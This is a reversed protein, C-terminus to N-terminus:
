KIIFFIIYLIKSSRHKTSMYHLESLLTKFFNIGVPWELRWHGTDEFFFLYDWLNHYNILDIKFLDPVRSISCEKLEGSRFALENTKLDAYFFLIEEKEGNVIQFAMKNNEFSTFSM